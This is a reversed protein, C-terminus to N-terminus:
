YPMPHSRHIDAIEELVTEDLRTEVGDIVRELQEMNTAGFIPITAVPRTRTWALALHVPDIGHQEALDLYAGVADFARDTARGGLTENTAKRSAAPVQGDQYKGTLLGAALPSYALLTVDENYCAEALDTDFQRCLLSYENQITAVRPGNAAAAADQWRCIGWASDNSLGFARIKGEAVFAALTEMLAAFNDRVEAADQGTPDFDWAKRFHFSGRNPWHLQYLDVHDTALRALSGELATRLTEPTIPAHDRVLPSPGTCKTALVIDDRRGTRRIWNGIVAETDGVTEATVPNVPYMEATDVFDIGADLARDLQAHGGAEDTQRGWTMTGLCWASVEIGTRGLEIREM